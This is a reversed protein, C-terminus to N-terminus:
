SAPGGDIRAAQLARLSCDSVAAVAADADMEVSGLASEIRCFRRAVSSDGVVLMARAGDLQRLLAEVRDRHDPHVVVRVVSEHAVDGYAARVIDDVIGAEPMADVIRTLAVRVAQAFSTEFRTVAQAMFQSAELLRAAYERDARQGGAEYGVKEADETAQRQAERSAEVEDAVVKLLDIAQELQGIADRKLVRSAVLIDRGERAGLECKFHM